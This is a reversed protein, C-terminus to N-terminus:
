IITTVMGVGRIRHNVRHHPLNHNWQYSTMHHDNGNRNRQDPPESPPLNHTWQYSMRHHDNGNRSRQDPPERENRDIHILSAGVNGDGGGQKRSAGMDGDDGRQYISTCAKGDHIKVRKGMAALKQKLKAELQDCITIAHEVLNGELEEQTGEPINKVGNKCDELWQQAMATCHVM